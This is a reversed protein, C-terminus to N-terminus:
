GRRVLFSARGIKRQRVAPEVRLGAALGATAKGDGVLHADLEPTLELPQAPYSSGAIGDRLAEDPIAKDRLGELLHDELPTRFHPPDVGDVDDIQHMVISEVAPEM